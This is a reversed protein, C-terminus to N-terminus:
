EFRKKKFTVKALHGIQGYNEKWKKRDRKTFLTEEEMGRERRRLPCYCCSLLCYGSPPNRKKWCGPSKKRERDRERGVFVGLCNGNSAEGGKQDRGEM